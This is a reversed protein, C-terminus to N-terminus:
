SSSSRGSVFRNEFRQTPHPEVPVLPRVTASTVTGVALGLAPRDIAFEGRRWLEEFQGTGAAFALAALGVASCIGILM